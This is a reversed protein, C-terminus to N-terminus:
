YVVLKSPAYGNVQLIYIGKALKTSYSDNVTLQKCVAGSINYISLQKSGEIGSIKLNGNTISYNIPNLELQKVATVGETLAGAVWTKLAISNITPNATVYSNLKTTAEAMPDAGLDAGDKGTAIKTLETIVIPTPGVGNVTSEIIMDSKAYNFDTTITGVSWIRNVASVATSGVANNISSIKPNLAICNKLICNTNPLQAIGSATAGIYGTAISGTSTITNTALCNYIEATPAPAYNFTAIGAAYSTTSASKASVSGAASCNVIKLIMGASQWVQGVIGACMAPGGTAFSNKASITANVSSNLIYINSSAGNAAGVLGGATARGAVTSTATTESSISGTVKCNDIISVSGAVGYITGVLGGCLTGNTSSSSTSSIHYNVDVWLNKITAGTIGGFFGTNFANGNDFPSGASGVNLGSVKYGKGDFKGTFTNTYFGIGYFNTENTMDINATLVYYAAAPGVGLATSVATKFAVLESPTGIQYPNAATGDGNAIGAIQAQSMSISAIIFIAFLLIKTKM